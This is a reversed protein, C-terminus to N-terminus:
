HGAKRWRQGGPTDEVAIGREALQTRINDSAAFDKESRATQRRALLERDGPGLAAERELQVLPFIGLVDDVEDLFTVATAAAGKSIQGADLVRNLERVLDFVVGIAETLNLDEDMADEFQARATQVKDGMDIGGTADLVDLLRDRLLVLRDVSESASHLSEPSYNVPKRYSSGAALLYRIAAPRVGMEDILQHLTFFNGKSKSMKEDDVLLHACHCWLKVFTKGTAAESQAIENEHHPFMNDIGGTHIDLTEGLLAFSMASCEIHWGPRGRGLRTDWGIEDAFDRVDEKEYEDADVRGSAGAVMGEAKMGSLKGYSPFMSIKFYISGDAEYTVGAAQLREILQVMQEIYETARPYHHARRIGLQDVGQFFADIWPDTETELDHGHEKAARITKDDVDTLNMVHTVKDFRRDLWRRLIDEFVFARYNGIHPWDYVTPGCTYIRIHGPEIPVVEKLQHSMTDYLRM